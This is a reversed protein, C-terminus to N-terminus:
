EPSRGGNPSSAIGRRVHVALRTRFLAQRSRPHEQRSGKIGVQRDLAPATRNASWCRRWSANMRGQTMGLSRGHITARLRIDISAFLRGELRSHISPNRAGAHVFRFRDSYRIAATNPKRHKELIVV